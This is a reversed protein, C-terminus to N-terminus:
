NGALPVALKGIFSGHPNEVMPVASKETLSLSAKDPPNNAKGLVSLATKQILPVASREM